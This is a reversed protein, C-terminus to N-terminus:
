NRTARSEKGTSGEIMRWESATVSLIRDAFDVGVPYAERYDSYTTKYLLVGGKVTWTGRWVFPRDGGSEQAVGRVEFKGNARLDMVQQDTQGDLLRTEEWRGTLLATLEADSQNIAGAGAASGAFSFCLGLCLVFRFFNAIM